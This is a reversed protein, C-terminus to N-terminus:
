SADTRGAPINDIDESSSGAATQGGNLSDKTKAFEGAAADISTALTRANDDSADVLVPAGAYCRGMAAFLLQDIRDPDPRYDLAAALGVDIQDVSDIDVTVGYGSYFPRGLTLVPKGYLLAELGVTSSIVAVAAADQLLQHTSTRPHVLRVNRRRGLRRLLGLPNQGISQPHEKIVLDYGAPLAHALHEVVPAQDAFQPLVHRIKYDETDHLPFYVFPRGPAPREYLLSTAPLRVRELAARGLWELPHLYENQRDRGAKAAVYLALRRVNRATVKQSRRPRIPAAREIFSRRFAEIERREDDNLPRLESPDVIPAHMTDVYLRLGRPFITYFLFFTPIGRSLAVTHAVTRPLERGVEPILVDPQYEDFVREIARVHKVARDRAEGKGLRESAVDSQYLDRLSALGYRDVISRAEDALDTPALAEAVEPLAYARGDRGRLREAALRSVTLHAAEHGLQALEAGVRGYFESEFGQITTFLFRM